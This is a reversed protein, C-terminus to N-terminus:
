NFLEKVKAACENLHPIDIGTQVGNQSFWKVLKETDMNGVKESGTFPCGGYGGLASDFRRCGARYGAEIKDKWYNEEGHLHLGVPISTIEELVSRTVAEIQTPTSLGVTDAISIIDAGIQQVKHAMEVVMESNYEEGYPNGFAMSLYVVLSKNHKICLEKIRALLSLSDRKSLRTNKLQFTDSLSLPYGISDVKKQNAAKLAGEDNAVIVLLQTTTRSTDLGELVEATDALQPVARPSVFSGMDLTHFGVELLMKFYAIKEATTIFKSFGQMADRPCEVLQLSDAARIM